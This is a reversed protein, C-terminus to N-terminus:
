GREGAGVIPTDGIRGDWKNTRGGTSTAAALRGQSDIAVAGVTQCHKKSPDAAGAMTRHPHGATSGAASDAGPQVATSNAHAPLMQVIEDAAALHQEDKYKLWQEYRQQTTFASNEVMPMGQRQAFAEADAGSLFM